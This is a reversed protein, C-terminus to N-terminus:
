LRCRAPASCPREARHAHGSGRRLASSRGALCATQHQQKFHTGHQSATAGAPPLIPQPTARTRPTPLWSSVGLRTTSTQLLRRPERCPHVGRLPSKPRRAQTGRALSQRRRELYQTRSPNPSRCVWSPYWRVQRQHGRRHRHLPSPRLHNRPARTTVPQRQRAQGGRCTTM